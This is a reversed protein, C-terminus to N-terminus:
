YLIISQQKTRCILLYLYGDFRRHFWIDALEMNNISRSFQDNTWYMDHSHQNKGLFINMNNLITYLSSLFVIYHKLQLSYNMSHHNWKISFLLFKLWDKNNFLCWNYIIRKWLWQQKYLWWIHITLMLSILLDCM